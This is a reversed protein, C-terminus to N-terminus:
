GDEDGPVDLEVPAIPTESFLRYQRRKHKVDAYESEEPDNLEGSQRSRAIPTPATGHDTLGEPEGERDDTEARALHTTGTQRPTLRHQTRRYEHEDASHRNQDRRNIVVEIHRM